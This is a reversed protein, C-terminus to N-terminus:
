LIFKVLWLTMGAEASLQYGIAVGFQDDITALGVLADADTAYEGDLIVDQLFEGDPSM